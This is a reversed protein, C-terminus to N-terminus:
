IMPKRSNVVCNKWVSNRFAHKKKKWLGLSTDKYGTSKSKEKGRRVSIRLAGNEIKFCFNVIM